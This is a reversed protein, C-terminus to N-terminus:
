DELTLRNLTPSVPRIETVKMVRDGVLIEEGLCVHGLPGTRELKEEIHIKM